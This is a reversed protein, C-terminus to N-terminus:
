HRPRSPDATNQQILRIRREIGALAAAMGLMAQALLTLKEEVSAAQLAQHAYDDATSVTTQRQDLGSRRGGVRQQEEVSRINVGSRRDVFSLTIIPRTDSDSM